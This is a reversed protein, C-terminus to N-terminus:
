YTWIKFRHDYSGDKALSALPIASSQQQTKGEKRAAVGYEEEALVLDDIIMLKSSLSSDQNIYYNAM